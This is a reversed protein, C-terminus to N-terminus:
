SHLRRRDPCHRIAACNRIIDPLSCYMHCCSTQIEAPPRHLSRMTQSAPLYRNAVEVASAPLPKRAPVHTNKHPWCIPNFLTKRIEATVHNEAASSKRIRKLVSKKAPIRNFQCYRIMPIMILSFAFVSLVINYLLISLDM